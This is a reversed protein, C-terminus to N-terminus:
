RLDREIIRDNWVKYHDTTKPLTKQMLLM